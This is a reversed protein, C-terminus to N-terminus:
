RLHFATWHMAKTDCHVSGSDFRDRLTGSAKRGTVKGTIDLKAGAANTLHISFKGGNITGAPNGYVEETGFAANGNSCAHTKRYYFRITKARAKTATFSFDVYNVRSAPPKSRYIGRTFKGMAVSATALAIVAVVLLAGTKQARSM